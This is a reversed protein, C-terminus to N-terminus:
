GNTLPQWSACFTQLPAARFTLSMPKMAVVVPEFAPKLATGYGTWGMPKGCRPCPAGSRGGQPQPQGAVIGPEGTRQEQHRPGRSTGSRGSVSVPGHAHGDGTPAGDCLRREAGDAHFGRPVACVESRHLEGQETQLYRRGELSPEEGDEHRTQDKKGSIGQTRAEGLRAGAIRRQLAELLDAEGGQCLGISEDAETQRLRRLSSESAPGAPEPSGEPGRKPAESADRWRMKELVGQPRGDETDPEDRFGEEHLGERVGSLEDDGSQAQPRTEQCRCGFQHSKPFGSAYVWLLPNTLGHLYTISDRIDFGADEIACTLRHFTRTGGFALLHAGPKLVRLVEAWVEVSPVGHDWAKGMFSLGYPPDCLVADFSASEMTRLVALADGERIEWTM